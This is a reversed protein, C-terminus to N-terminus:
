GGSSAAGTEGHRVADSNGCVETAVVPRGLAMAELASLPLGEFYSPLCFIDLANILDPADKRFGLFEVSDQLGLAV